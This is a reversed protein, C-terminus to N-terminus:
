KCDRAVAEKARKIQQKRQYDSMQMENGDRDVLKRNDSATFNALNKKAAECNKRQREQEAADAAAKKDADKKDQRSDAGQQLSDILQQRSQGATSPPPPPAKVTSTETAANPRFQSYVVQGNEDVYRYMEAFLPTSGLILSATLVFSKKTM